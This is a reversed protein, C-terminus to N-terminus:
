SQRWRERDVNMSEARWQAMAQERVVELVAKAKADYRGSVCSDFDGQERLCGGPCCIARAIADHIM